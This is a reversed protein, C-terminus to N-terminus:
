VYRGGFRKVIEQWNTVREFTPYNVNRNHPRSMLLKIGGQFGLLNKAHDDIMAHARILSKDNMEVYDPSITGHKLELFGHRELWKLKKGSQHLNTSTVFVCRHGAQRLARVGELAGPIPEVGEYLDPLHLYDFIKLGCQPNVCENIEWRDMDAPTMEDDYDKNYLNLWHTILDACVDDVDVAIVM